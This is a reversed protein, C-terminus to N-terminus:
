PGKPSDSGANVMTRVDKGMAVAQPYTLIQNFIDALPKFAAHEPLDQRRNFNDKSVKEPNWKGDRLRDQKTLHAKIDDLNYILTCHAWLYDIPLRIVYGIDECVIRRAGDFKSARYEETATRSSHLPTDQPGKTITRKPSSTEHSVRLTTRRTEPAPPTTQSLQPEM